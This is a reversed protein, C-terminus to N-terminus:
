GIAPRTIGLQLPCRQDHLSVVGAADQVPVLHAEVALGGVGEGPGLVKPLLSDNLHNVSTFRTFHDNLFM